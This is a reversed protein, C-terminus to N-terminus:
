HGRLSCGNVEQFPLQLRVSLCLRVSPQLQPPFHTPGPPPLSLLGERGSSLPFSVRLTWQPFGALGTHGRPPSEPMLLFGTHLRSASDALRRQRLPGGLALRLVGGTLHSSPQSSPSLPRVEGHAAPLPRVHNWPPVASGLLVSVEASPSLPPSWSLGPLSKPSSVVGRPGQPTM